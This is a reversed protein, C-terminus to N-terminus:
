PTARGLRRVAWLGALTVLAIQGFGLVWGLVAEAGALDLAMGVAVPGVFGGAYGCMSHLGMTAGRREREAAAVTGATLAASDLYIAANLVLV